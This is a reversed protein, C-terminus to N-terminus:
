TYGTELANSLGNKEIRIGFSMRSKCVDQKINMIREDENNYNPFKRVPTHEVDAGALESATVKEM